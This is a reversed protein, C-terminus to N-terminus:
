AAPLIQVICHYGTWWPPEQSCCFWTRPSKLLFPTLSIALYPRCFGRSLWLALSLHQPVLLLVWMMGSTVPDRDESGQASLQSWRSWPRRIGHAAVPGHGVSLLHAHGLRQGWWLRGLSGRGPSSGAWLVSQSGPYRILPSEDELRGRAAWSAPAACTQSGARHGWIPFEGGMPRLKM